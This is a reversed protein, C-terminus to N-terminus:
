GACLSVSWERGKHATTRQVNECAAASLGKRWEQCLAWWLHIQVKECLLETTRARPESNHEFVWQSIDVYFSIQDGNAWCGWYSLFCIRWVQLEGSWFWFCVYTNKFSWTTLRLLVDKGLLEKLHDNLIACHQMLFTCNIYLVDTSVPLGKCHSKSSCLQFQFNLQYCALCKGHWECRQILKCVVHATAARCKLMDYIFKPKWFSLKKKVASQLFNIETRTDSTFFRDNNHDSVTEHWADHSLVPSIQNVQSSMNGTQSSNM